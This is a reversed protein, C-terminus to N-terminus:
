KGAIMDQMINLTEQLHLDKKVNKIWEENRAQKSENGEMGPLDVELNEVGFVVQAEFLKEFADLEAQKLKEESQYTTLNLPVSSDDRQEKMWKANDEIDNFVANNKIRYASKERLVQINDVQLVNQTHEVPAIETWEMPFDHAGEGVEIYSYADPLVIDPTVGKLQTSGGNIRYFKQTTLKIDGLPKIEYLGPVARDLSFFRQVTGKGFTSSSGVIVARDYDQLAAAIIESASASFENVMVILNGDWQVQPDTDSLVEPSRGRAKVQVVPGDEVFFGTMRVVDRLSGGGNNRLDLIIGEVKEAKLKEIEAAVDRACSRGNKDYFDDYFRPLSIYGVKNKEPTDLLLSKAFGEELIVVDRIIQVQKMTGDVSKVTLNVITGKKGRILQVVDDLRMGSIDVPEEGEQAVKVIKDSEKLDGQKWAPGGVVISTVKTYDGDTQLRAGIGELKGAMQIDFNQKEIPEYYSSHPDFINTFTNLYTNLYDSRKRKEIRKYWDDYTKLVEKRSEAELEEYSKGALEEDEGKEQTKLKDALRTMTEYKMLQEWYTKLTAEDKAYGRKEGDLEIELDGEFSLPEALIEQYYSQTREIGNKLLDISLNLFEYTGAIAEDDLKSEYSKLKLFDEETLWRRNGDLREMYLKFVENSFGDNIKKPSYHYRNLDKLITQILVAEKQSTDVPPYFAVFILGVLAVSFFIPGRFKM